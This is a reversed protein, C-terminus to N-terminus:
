VQGGGSQGCVARLRRQMGPESALHGAAAWHWSSKGGPLHSLRLHWQRPWEASCVADFRGHVWDVPVVARALAPLAAALLGPAVGARCRLLQAQVRFKQWLARDAPAPAAVRRAQLRREQRQMSALNARCEAALTHEQRAMADVLARKAGRMAAWTECAQWARLVALTAHCLTGSHLLRTVTKFLAPLATASVRPWGPPWAHGAQRGTHPQLVNWVDQRRLLFTGRLVLRELRNAHQAAYALALTGGWSGALVAWREIGLHLRLRELDDVLAAMRQGQLRGRPRSAGSGRQDMVVVACGPMALPALLGPHSGSGPGGHLVLWVHEAHAPGCWRWALRHGSAHLVGARTPQPWREPIGLPAQNNAGIKRFMPTPLTSAFFTSAIDVTLKRALGNEVPSVTMCHVVGLKVSRRKPKSIVIYMALRQGRPTIEGGM